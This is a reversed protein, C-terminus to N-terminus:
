FLGLYWSLINGGWLLTVITALSLFPGFPIAERRRKIKLALLIGAVLGGAIVALLLAVFVLPRSPEFGTVLGILAAMKVDGWGMGGRSVLAVLFFLVLGIGGGVAAWQIRPVIEVQPLFLSFLTSVLLALAMAPYVVKNLILRHELDIVLLVIFISSYVLAILLELSLGYRWCALGFLVGTGIEVWLVRRPIPAQCYRCRGRLWLYSFVPVLDKARLRRRCEPCHSPPYVISGGAPLRDGCVNLFSGVMMGLFIFIVIFGIEM